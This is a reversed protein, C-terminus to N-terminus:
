HMLFHFLLYLVGWGGGFLIVIIIFKLFTKM